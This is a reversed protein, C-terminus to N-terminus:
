GAARSKGNDFRRHEVYDSIFGWVSEFTYGAHREPEDTAM